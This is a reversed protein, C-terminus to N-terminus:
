VAYINILNLKSCLSHFSLKPLAKTLIDAVQHKSPVYHLDVIKCEIKESIFHRDVEIHKTRDHHVPNVAISLAAENDSHLHVPDESSINLSNLVRKLWLGECIGHALARYEAEASSRSVVSQKKSRWTVLNGWVYSCYGSTSRRDTQSGAYDSDTYVDVSRSQNKKFFLGKGPSGKLYRLIRFVAEMHSEKPRSMFRSVLSVAFCIDPRTNALYILKGVLRQYRGKDVDAEEEKADLKLNPEMPTESPKSRLMGTEKLLDLTYKRQSVSIGIRSRSVEM